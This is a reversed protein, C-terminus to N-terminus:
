HRERQRSSFRGRACDTFRLMPVPEERVCARHQIHCLILYMSSGLYTSRTPLFNIGSRSVEQGIFPPLCPPLPSRARLSSSTSDSRIRVSRERENEMAKKQAPKPSARAARLFARTSGTAGGDQKGKQASSFADADTRRGTQNYGIGHEITQLGKNIYMCVNSDRTETDMRKKQTSPDHGQVGKSIRM